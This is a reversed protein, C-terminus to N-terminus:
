AGESRELRPLVFRDVTRVILVGLLIRIAVVTIFLRSAPGFGLPLAALAFLLTDEPISHCTCLFLCLALM